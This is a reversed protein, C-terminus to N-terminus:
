NSQSKESENAVDDSMEGKKVYYLVSSGQRREPNRLRTSRAISSLALLKARLLYGALFLKRGSQNLYVLESMLSNYFADLPMQRTKVLKFGARQLLRALTQPTFHYLHRPADLAVWNQRYFRADTSGINPVAILVYGDDKLIQRVTQLAEWPDHLHELVHWLTVIDYSKKLHKKAEIDGSTVDLRYIKQAFEAAQADKEIGRTQWGHSQMELLFEGTGCGIDLL